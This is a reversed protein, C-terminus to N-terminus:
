PAEVAPTVATITIGAKDAVEIIRPRDLVITSGAELALVAARVRKLLAITTPGIVPIDFRMDHNHKAMKVVVAGPGALRGARRITEDSGEFAEVALITGEKVVVTQGVDLRSTSKAVRMGLEIDVREADSPTRETLCGAGPMASEMFRSAPLLAIGIEALQDGIAGFITEANRVPLNKLLARMPTDMRVRFLKTPTVQGAMVAEHVGSQRLTELMRGLQGVRIWTVDDVLGDLRRDTEGSFAVATIRDVGESRAGEALALPYLGRGAILGLHAPGDISMDHAYSLLPPSDLSKQRRPYRMRNEIAVQSVM